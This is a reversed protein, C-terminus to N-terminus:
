PSPPSLLARGRREIASKVSKRSEAHFWAELTPIDSTAAVLAMADHANGPVAGSAAEVPPAEVPPAEVPAPPGAFHGLPDLLAGSAILALFCPDGRLALCLAEGIQKTEGPMFTLGGRREGGLFGQVRPALNTVIVM